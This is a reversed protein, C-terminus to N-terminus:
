GDDQCTGTSESAPNRTVRIDPYFVGSEESYFVAMYGACGEADHFVADKLSTRNEWGAAAHWDCTRTEWCIFDNVDMIWVTVPVTARFNVHYTFTDPVGGVYEHGPTLPCGPPSPDCANWLSFSPHDLDGVAADVADQLERLQTQYAQSQQQYGESSKRLDESAQRWRGAESKWEDTKAVAQRYRAESSDRAERAGVYGGAVGATATLLLLVLM